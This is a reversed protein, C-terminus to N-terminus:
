QKRKWIYQAWTVRSTCLSAAVHTDRSQSCSAPTFPMAAALVQQWKDDLGRRAARQMTSYQLGAGLHRLNPDALSPSGDPQRASSVFPLVCAIAAAARAWLTYSRQFLLSM